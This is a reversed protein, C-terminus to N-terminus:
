IRASAFSLLQCGDRSAAYVAVTDPPQGAGPGELYVAIYADRGDFTAAVISTLRGTPQGDFAERVCRAADRTGSSLATSRSSDEAAAVGAKREQQAALEQLAAQDYDRDERRLRVPSSAANPQPVV